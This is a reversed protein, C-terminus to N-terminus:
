PTEIAADVRSDHWSDDYEPNAIYLAAYNGGRAISPVWQGYINGGGPADPWTDMINQLEPTDSSESDDTWVVYVDVMRNTPYTVKFTVTDSESVDVWPTREAYGKPVEVTDSWLVAM